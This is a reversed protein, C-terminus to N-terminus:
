GKSTHTSFLSEWFARELKAARSGAQGPHPLIPQGPLGLKVSGATRPAPNWDPQADGVCGNVLSQSGSHGAQAAGPLAPHFTRPKDQVQLCKWGKAEGQQSEQGPSPATPIRTPFQALLPPILTDQLLMGHPSCELHGSAQRCLNENAHGNMGCVRQQYGREGGGPTEPQM